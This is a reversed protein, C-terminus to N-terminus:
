NKGFTLKKKFSVNFLFIHKISLFLGPLLGACSFFKRLITMLNVVLFINTFPANLSATNIGGVLKIRLKEIYM